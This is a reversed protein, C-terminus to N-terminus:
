YIKRVTLMRVTQSQSSCELLVHKKWSLHSSELHKEQQHSSVQPIKRLRMIFAFQNNTRISTQGYM